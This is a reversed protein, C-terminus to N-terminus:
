HQSQEKIVLAEPLKRKEYNNFGDSLVLFQEIGVPPHGTELTHKYLSSFKDRTSLDKIRENLRRGTEGIYFEGCREHGCEVKYVM